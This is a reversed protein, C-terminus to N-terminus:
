RSLSTLIEIYRGVITYRVVLDVTTTSVTIM